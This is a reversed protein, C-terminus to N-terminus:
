CTITTPTFTRRPRSGCRRAYDGGCGTASSQMASRARCRLGVRASGRGDRQRAQLLFAKGPARLGQAAARFDTRRKLREMTCVEPASKSPLGSPEASARTFRRGTARNLREAAQPWPRTAGRNGKSRWQHGDPQSLRPPAQAGTQEASLDTERTSRRQARLNLLFILASAGARRDPGGTRAARNARSIRSAGGRTLTVEM